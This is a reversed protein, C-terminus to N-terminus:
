SSAPPTLLESVQGAAQPGTTTLQEKSLIGWNEKRNRTRQKNMQCRTTVQTFSVFCKKILEVFHVALEKWSVLKSNRFNVSSTVNTATYTPVLQYMFGAMTRNSVKVTDCVILSLTRWTVGARYEPLCLTRLACAWQSQMACPRSFMM